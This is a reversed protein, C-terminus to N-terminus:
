PEGGQRRRPNAIGDLGSSVLFLGAFLLVLFGVPVAWWWWLGRTMADFSIAWYLTMGLTPANQPGLGLSELYVTALIASMVAGAFSAALFPLLNPLMERFVITLTGAGNLRTMEVYGANRMSLAQARITRAPWMWSLSAVVLAMLGLNIEERVVTAISVLVLLGPVTLLADVVTRVCADIWGGRYGALLGLAAGIGLGVGGALFGVWATMPLGYAMVAVLNRGYDDTGFPYRGCPAQRVVDLLDGSATTPQTDAIGVFLRAVACFLTLGGLLILGAALDPYARCWRKM